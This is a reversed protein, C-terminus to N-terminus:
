KTKTTTKNEPQRRRRKPKEELHRNTEIKEYRTIAMELIERWAIPITDRANVGLARLREKDGLSSKITEYLSETTDECLLGNEGDSIAEAASSGRVIISPTEMAAAERVVMPANDYLSPFVLMEARRYLGDLLVTDEIHGTFITIDAIDLETAKEEIENRNPGQGALVLRIDAGDKKLMAAAELIRKINKKWHMQGVFLLVPSEALGFREAATEAASDDIPRIDTGNPMVQIEGKFGYGKLVEASSHSVSWVEDCHSYFEVIYKVGLTSIVESKTTHFLDDYYKSHFTGILPVRQKKAIRLAEHGAIFPSHCHVVDFEIGSMRKHYHSDMIPIGVKYQTSTVLPMGAYEILEFPFGGRYGTEGIPAIVYCEHGLAAINVAYNYVVRGVGDVIPLFTDTFQGIRLSSGGKIDKLM